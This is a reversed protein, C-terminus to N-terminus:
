PLELLHSYRVGRAKVMRAEEDESKAMLYKDADDKHFQFLIHVGIRDILNQTTPHHDLAPMTKGSSRYENPVLELTHRQIALLCIM